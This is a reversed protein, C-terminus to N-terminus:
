STHDGKAAGNEFAHARLLQQELKLRMFQTSVWGLIVVLIEARSAGDYQSSRVLGELIVEIECDSSDETKKIAVRCGNTTGSASTVGSRIM